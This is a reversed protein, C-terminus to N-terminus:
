EIIATDGVSLGSAISGLENKAMEEADMRGSLTQTNPVHEQVLKGYETAVCVVTEAGMSATEASLERGETTGSFIVVRM